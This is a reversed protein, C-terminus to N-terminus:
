CLIISKGKCPPKKLAKIGLANGQAIFDMPSEARAEQRLSAKDILVFRPHKTEWDVHHM